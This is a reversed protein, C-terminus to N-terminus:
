VSSYWAPIEEGLHAVHDRKSNWGPPGGGRRFRAWGQPKGQNLLGMACFACSPFSSTFNEMLNQLSSCLCRAM